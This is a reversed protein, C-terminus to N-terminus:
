GNRVWGALDAFVQEKGTENYPEHLYGEYVKLVKGPASARNFFEETGAPDIVPDSGGHSALFRIKVEHARELSEVNAALWETYLRASIKSHTLPDNRYAPAVAPDRSLGDLDLENDLALAPMAKSAFQGVKAKWAPVKAKIRLAPSSLVFRAPKLAGRIVASALIAGGVSHGLPIVEAGSARGAVHEAFAHADELLENWSRVHGRAGEAKGHGRWDVAHVGIGEAAMARALGEYRGSHEGLGHM